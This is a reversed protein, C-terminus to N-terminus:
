QKRMIILKYRLEVTEKPKLWLSWAIEKRDNEQSKINSRAVSCVQGADNNVNVFLAVPSDKSNAVVLRYEGEDITPTIPRYSEQTLQAIIGSNENTSGAPIRIMANGGAEIQRMDTAGILSFFVGDHHYITARGSPLLEGLGVDKTNPFSGWREVQLRVSDKMKSLYKGGVSIENSISVPVHKVNNLVITREKGNGLSCLRDFRHIQSASNPLTYVSDTAESPQSANQGGQKSSSPIKEGSFQIQAKKISIGSSNSIHITSFLNINEMNKTFVIIYNANWHIDDVVFQIEWLSDQSVVIDSPLTKVVISRPSVRPVEQKPSKQQNKDHDTAGGTPAAPDQTASSIGQPAESDEAKKTKANKKGKKTKPSTKEETLWYVDIDIKDPSRIIISDANVKSSLGRITYVSKKNACVPSVTASIVAGDYYLSVKVNGSTTEKHNASGAQKASNAQKTSNASTANTRAAVVIESENHESSASNQSVIHDYLSNKEKKSFFSKKANCPQTLALILLELCFGFLKLIQKLVTIGRHQGFM